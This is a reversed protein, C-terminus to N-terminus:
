RLRDDRAPPIIRTDGTTVGARHAPAASDHVRLAEARSTAPVHDPTIAALRANEKELERIRRNAEHLEVDAHERHKSHRLELDQYRERWKKGRSGTALGLLWGAFLTLALAVFQTTTQFPLDHM